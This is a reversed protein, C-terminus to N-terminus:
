YEWVVSASMIAATSYVEWSLTWAALNPPGAIEITRITGDADFVAGTLRLKRELRMGHPGWLAFDVTPAQEIDLLFKLCSLQAETCEAEPGPRSHAGFLVEWRAYGASMVSDDVINVETDDGQRLILSLKVKAKPPVQVAVPALTGPPAAELSPLPQLRDLLGTKLRCFLGINLLAGHQFLNPPLDELPAEATSAPNRLTIRNVVDNFHVEPIIGFIRPLALETAGTAALFAGALTSRDAPDGPVQAWGMVDSLTHADDLVTQTVISAMTFITGETQWHLEVLFQYSTVQTQVSPIRSGFHFQCFQM